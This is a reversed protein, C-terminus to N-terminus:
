AKGAATTAPDGESLLSGRAQLSRSTSNLVKRADVSPRGVGDAIGDRGKQGGSYVCSPGQLGKQRAGSVVGVCDGARWGM